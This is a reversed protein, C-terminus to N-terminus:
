VLCSLNCKTDSLESFSFAANGQPIRRGARRDSDHSSDHSSIVVHDGKCFDHRELCAKRGDLSYQLSREALHLPVHLAPIHGLAQMATPAARRAGFSTKQRFLQSLHDRKFVVSNRQHVRRTETIQISQSDELWTAFLM